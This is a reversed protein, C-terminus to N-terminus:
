PKLRQKWFVKGGAELYLKNGKIKIWIRCHIYGPPVRYTRGYLSITSDRRVRRCEEIILLHEIERRTVKRESPHYAQAPTRGNLGRANGRWRFNYWAVWRKWRRNLEEISKVDLNERVFDRQVFRWFREIKGKTQARKAWKLKIGLLQAYYQYDAQGIKTTAKYQSGRDQLVAKPVGWRRMASYWVYFVNQKTQRRYWDSSLVFRSHDDLAAILYVYGLHPFKMKGMIDTQWLDNPAAAVFRRIPKLREVNLRMLGAKSLVWWVARDGVPLKLKERIYRCSRWPGEQKLKKIQRIQLAILKHHNGGRKDLLGQPGRKLFRRKYRQITRTTCGLDCAAQRNTLKGRLCKRLTELQLLYWRENM